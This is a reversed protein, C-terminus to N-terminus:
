IEGNKAVIQWEDEYVMGGVESFDVEKCSIDPLYKKHIHLLTKGYEEKGKETLFFKYEGAPLKPRPWWTKAGEAESFNESPVAFSFTDKKNSVYRYLKQNLEAEFLELGRALGSAGEFVSNGSLCTQYASEIKDVDETAQKKKNTFYELAKKAQELDKVLAEYTENVEKASQIIKGGEEGVVENIVVTTVEDKLEEKKEEIKKALLDVLTQKFSLTDTVIELTSKKWELLQKIDDCRNRKEDKKDTKSQSLIRAMGYPAIVLAIALAIIAYPFSVPNEPVTLPPPVPMQIAKSPPLPVPIPKPVSLAKHPVIIAPATTAIATSAPVARPVVETPTRTEAPALAPANAENSTRADTPPASGDSQAFVSLAFFVFFAGTFFVFIKKLFQNFM